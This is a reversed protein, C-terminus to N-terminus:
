LFRQPGGTTLPAPGSCAPSPSSCATPPEPGCLLGQACCSSATVQSCTRHCDRSPSSPLAGGCSSGCPSPLCSVDERPEPLLWHWRRCALFSVGRRKDERTTLVPIYSHVMELRTSSLFVGPHGSLLWPDLEIFSLRM